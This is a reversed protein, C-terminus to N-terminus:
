IKLECSTLGDILPRTQHSDNSEKPLVPECAILKGGVPLAKYCNEM